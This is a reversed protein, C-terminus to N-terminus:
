VLQGSAIREAGPKSKGGAVDLMVERFPTGFRGAIGAGIQLGHATSPTFAVLRDETVTRTPDWVRMKLSPSPTVKGLFEPPLRVTDTSRM